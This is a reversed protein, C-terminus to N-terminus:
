FSIDAASFPAQEGFPRVADALQERDASALGINLWGPQRSLVRQSEAHFTRLDGSELARSAALVQLTNIAGRLEADVGTMASAVRGMADRQMREHEHDVLVAGAVAAFVLLPALSAAALTMLASRLKVGRNGSRSQERPEPGEESRWTDNYL